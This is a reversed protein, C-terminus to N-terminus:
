KISLRRAATLVIGRSDSSIETKVLRDGASREGGKEAFRRVKGHFEEDRAGDLNGFFRESGEALWHDAM